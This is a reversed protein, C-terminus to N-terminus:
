IMGLSAMEDCGVEGEGHGFGVQQRGDAAHGVRLGLGTGIGDWDWELIWVCDAM